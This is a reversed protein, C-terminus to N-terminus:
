NSRTSRRLLAIGSALYWAIVGVGFAATLEDALVLTTTLVGIVGVLLGLVNISRPLLGTRLAGMSVAAVWLGGVLEIGGGMGTLLLDLSLWTSAADDLSTDALGAIMDVSAIATMGVAFMLTAWITGLAAQARAWSPARDRLLGYLTVTGAVLALGFGIFIVAYWSQLEVPHEAVLAVNSAASSGPARYGEWPAIMLVYMVMGVLFAAGQGLAALAGARPLRCPDHDLSTPRFDTITM